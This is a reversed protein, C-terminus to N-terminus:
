NRGIIDIFKPRLTAGQYNVGDTSYTLEQVALGNFNIDSQEIDVFIATVGLNDSYEIRLGDKLTKVIESAGNSLRYQAGEIITADIKQGNIDRADLPFSAATEQILKM